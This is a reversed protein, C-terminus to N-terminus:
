IKMKGRLARGMKLKSSCVHLSVTEYKVYVTRTGATGRCTLTVFMQSNFFQFVSEHNKKLTYMRYIWSNKFMNLLTIIIHAQQKKVSSIIIFCNPTFHIMEKCSPAHIEVSFIYSINSFPEVQHGFSM